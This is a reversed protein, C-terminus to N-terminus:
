KDLVKPVIIYNDKNELAQKRLVQKSDKVLDERLEGIISDVGSISEKIKDLKLEKIKNVYNLVSRLQKQYLIIEEEKLKLKALNALNLIEKKSLKM